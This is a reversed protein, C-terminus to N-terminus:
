PTTQTPAPTTTTATPAQPQPPLSIKARLVVKGPTTPKEVRELTVLVQGYTPTQPVLDAVVELKGKDNVTAKPFGIFLKQSPSNYLWVGYAAGQPAPTMKNAAILLKFQNANKYNIIATEGSAKSSSGSPPRLAGQLVVRPQEKPTTNAARTVTPIKPKAPDDNNFVGLVLVLVIAILLGLAGFLIKTGLQSSRQVEQRRAARKDLAEFAQDVEAPEAPIEPLGDGAIPRLAGAVARAWHRGDASDELYERTAARRSASQQGLLYDAIERRRDEGIDPKAPVLAGVAEHARSQIAGPDTKLLAAIEDYSKGQKLLLQLTARQLDNLSDLGAM